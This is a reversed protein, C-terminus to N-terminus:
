SNQEGRGPDPQSLSSFQVVCSTAHQSAVILLTHHLPRGIIKDVAAVDWVGVMADSRDIVSRSVWRDARLSEV